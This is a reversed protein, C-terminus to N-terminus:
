YSIFMIDLSRVKWVCSNMANYSKLEVATFARLDFPRQRKGEKKEKKRGVHRVLKVDCIWKHSKVKTCGKMFTEPSKYMIIFSFLPFPSGLKKEKPCAERALEIQKASKKGM